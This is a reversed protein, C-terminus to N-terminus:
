RYYRYYMMAAICAVLTHMIMLVYGCVRLRRVRSALAMILGFIPLPAFWLIYCSATHFMKLVPIHSLPKLDTWIMGYPFVVLATWTGLPKGEWNYAPVLLVAADALIGAVLWQWGFKQAIPVGADNPPGGACKWCSDFQDELTESCKPCTWM